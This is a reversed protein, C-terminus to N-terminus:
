LSDDTAAVGISHLSVAPAFLDDDRDSRARQDDSSVAVCTTALRPLVTREDLVWFIQVRLGYLTKSDSRAPTIRSAQSFYVHSNYVTVTYRYAKPENCSYKTCKMHCITSFSADAGDRM